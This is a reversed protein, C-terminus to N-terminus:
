GRLGDECGPEVPQVDDVDVFRDGDQKQVSVACHASDMEYHLRYLSDKQPVFLITNKCSAAPTFAAVGKQYVYSVVIPQGSRVRRQVGDHPDSKGQLRRTGFFALRTGDPHRECTANAFAQVFMYSGTPLEGTSILLTAAPATEPIAHHSIWAGMLGVVVALVGSMLHM